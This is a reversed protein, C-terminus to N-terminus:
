EVFKNEATSKEQGNKEYWVEWELLPAGRLKWINRQSERPVFKCEVMRHTAAEESPESAETCDLCPLMFQLQTRIWRQRLTREELSMTAPPLLSDARERDVAMMQVPLRIPGPYAEAPYLGERRSARRTTPYPEPQDPMPDPYEELVEVPLQPQHPFSEESIGYPARHGYVLLETASPYPYGVVPVQLYGPAEGGRQGM